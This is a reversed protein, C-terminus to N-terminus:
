QFPLLRESSAAEQPANQARRVIEFITAAFGLRTIRSARSMNTMPRASGHNRRHHKWDELSPVLRQRDPIDDESPRQLCEGHHRQHHAPKEQDDDGLLRYVGPRDDSGLKAAEPSQQDFCLIWDSCDPLM